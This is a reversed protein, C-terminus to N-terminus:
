AISIAKGNNKAMSQLEELTYTALKHNKDLYINYIQPTKSQSTGALAEKTARYVGNSVSGVIQDNNMVATHGGIQGVMEALGNERAWFLQGTQPMGGGDYRQIPQWKGGAYVGGDAKFISNLIGLGSTEVKFAISFAKGSKKKNLEKELSSYFENVFKVISAPIGGILGSLIAQLIEKGLEGFSKKGEKVEKLQSNMKDYIAKPINTMKEVANKMGKVIFDIITKGINMVKEQFEKDKIKEKIKDPISLVFDIVNAIIKAVNEQFEKDEIKKLIKDPIEIVKNIIKGATEGAKSPLKKVWDIIPKLKQKLNELNLNKLKSTFEKSFDIISNKMTDWHEKFRSAISSFDGNILDIFVELSTNLASLSIESLTGLFHVFKDWEQKITKKIGEKINDLLTVLVPLTKEILPTLINDIFPKIINDILPTLVKKMTEYLKTYINKLTDYVKVLNDKLRTVQKQLNEDTLFAQIEAIVVVIVPLITSLKSLVAKDGFIKTIISSGDKLKSVVTFVGKVKGFLTTIANIVKIPLKAITTVMTVVASSLTSIFPFDILGIKKLIKYIKYIGTYIAGGVALSGLITGSTIHDFKFSVKGTKEDVEKTFGLWEMIKDRIKTAKMEVNQIKKNYEDMAKNALNLIDASVGTGTGGGSGSGSGNKPSNINILQDFSRLGSLEKKLNKTSATAGDMGNTIDDLTQTVGAGFNLDKPDFNFLKGMLSAIVRAIETLVMLIANVYPLARYVIPLFIDGIARTLREWQESMIRIQNAPSEITKGWDNTAEKVQTLLSAIIVLRKEAYTLKNISKDIGANILTQQLTSQTIDAGLRRAPKTQGALASTLISVAENPDEFNYLSSTDIALQTLTKSLKAGVQDSLGMANALQKFLGVTRYGWSEDLGYMESLRNVFKDTETTNGKFAVQLLNLNEYYTSSKNVNEAMAKTIQKLKNVFTGIAKYNFAITSQKAMKDLNESAKKTENATTKSKKATQTTSYVAKDTLLFYVDELTDRYKQLENLNQIENKFQIKVENDM